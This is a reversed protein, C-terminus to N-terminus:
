GRGAKYAKSREAFYNALGEFEFKRIERVAQQTVEFITTQEPNASLWSKVMMVLTESRSSLGFQVMTQDVAQALDM